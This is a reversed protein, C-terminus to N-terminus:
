IYFDCKQTRGNDNSVINFKEARLGVSVIDRRRRIASVIVFLELMIKKKNRSVLKIVKLPFVFM